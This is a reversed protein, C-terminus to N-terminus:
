IDGRVQMPDWVRKNFDSELFMERVEPSRSCIGRYQCGGFNFCSKDNQPWYDEEAYKEAQGMYYTTDKIWEDLQSPTRNAFGRQFRSFTVMIQAADIIVGQVAINYVIKGAVSYTSMQNDPSYRKFYHGDNIAHKTTKRDLVWVQGAIEGLRDIHGCLIAEDGSKFEKPFQHRFSLEVAPKGNELRVTRIPDDKFQELYWVITRLLTFRNKHQDGSSWPRNLERNWTAKLAHDVAAMTSTDHDLGEFRKHDYLELASHYIIGFELHFSRQKPEYGKIISYYYYRACTKLASLSTSDWAVQLTPLTLSFSSNM